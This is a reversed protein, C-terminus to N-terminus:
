VWWAEREKRRTELGGLDPGSAKLEEATEAM